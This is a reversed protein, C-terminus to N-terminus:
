CIEIHSTLPVARRPPQKCAPVYVRLPAGRFSGVPTAFYTTTPQKERGRASRSCLVRCDIVAPPVQASTPCSAPTRSVGSLRKPPNRERPVNRTSVATPVGRHHHLRDEVGPAKFLRM